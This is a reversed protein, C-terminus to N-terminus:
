ASLTMFFFSWRSPRNRSIFRRRDNSFGESFRTLSFPSAIHLALFAAHMEREFADLIDAIDLADDPPGPVRSQIEDFRRALRMNDHAHNLDDGMFFGLSEVMEAAVRTGSGGVGGIVVPASEFCRAM